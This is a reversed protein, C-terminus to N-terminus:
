RVDLIQELSAETTTLCNRDTETMVSSDRSCKLHRNTSVLLQIRYFQTTVRAHGATLHPPLYEPTGPLVYRRRRRQTM